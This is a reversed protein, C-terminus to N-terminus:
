RCLAFTTSVASRHVRRHLAHLLDHVTIESADRYTALGRQALETALESQHDDGAEGSRHRRAALVPHRGADLTSLASGSGAHSVVIDATALAATMDHAGLYPRVTIPLGDTPTCGTQWLVSVSRGTRRELEGGAALIPVLRQVLRTFPFEAATGVTVVVRLPGRGGPGHEVPAYADLVSGSFTWRRDALAPYQTYRRIRPVWTLVRGTLSPGSTRAAGEVYHCEVGRAALYPLYGVAIASGTSVARTIGYRRHLRRVTPLCGLVGAVDRVGIYPVFEVERGTLLQRSQENEHTVWLAPGEVPIQRALDHLQDLHGGTTAVFLTTM